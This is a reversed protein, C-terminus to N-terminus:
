PQTEEAQEIEPAVSQSLAFTLKFESVADSTDTNAVISALDEDIFVESVELQRMFESLRNNSESIGSVELTRGSRNLRRFAIGPPVISALEDLVHPAINRSTQLQEILAMRQEVQRKQERISKIQAIRSDLVAIEQELYRNRETQNQILQDVGSGILWFLAFTVMVVLLLVLLYQQKQQQRKAERWPLLNIHAM